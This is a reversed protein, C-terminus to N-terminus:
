FQGARVLAPLRFVNQLPGYRAQDRVLDNMASLLAEVHRDLVPEISFHLLHRMVKEGARAGALAAVKIRLSHCSQQLLMIPPHAVMRMGQPRQKHELYPVAHENIMLRRRTECAGLADSIPGNSTCRTDALLEDIIVKEFLRSWLWILYGPRGRTSWRILLKSAPPVSRWAASNSLRSSSFRKSTRSATRPQRPGNRRCITVRKGYTGSNGRSPKKLAFAILCSRRSRLVIISFRM